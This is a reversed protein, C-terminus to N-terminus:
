KKIRLWGTLLSLDVKIPKKKDGCWLCVGFRGVNIAYALGEWECLAQWLRRMDKSWYIDDFIVISKNNLKPIILRFLHLTEAQEKPGYIYVLDIQDILNDLVNRLVEDFRGNIVHSQANVQRINHEALRALAPSGEITIFKGCAPASALYCGSVGASSGLELVTFAQFSKACLYLFMGWEPSVSSKKAIESATREVHHNMLIPTFLKGNNAIQERISEVKSFVKKDEDSLSRKFLFSLPMFLKDPLGRSHLRKLKFHGLPALCNRYIRVILPEYSKLITNDM